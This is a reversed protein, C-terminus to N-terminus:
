GPDVAFLFETAAPEYESVKLQNTIGELMAYINKSESHSRDLAVFEHIAGNIEILSCGPTKEVGKGKMQTRIQAAEEWKHSVAYLNSLLAYRGSHHPQLKILHQGVHEGLRFDNHIMCAGFLAGWIGPSPEMPMNEILSLAEELHGARGLLDVMCGYHERNPKFGYVQSMCSFYMWGQNVLGAHSCASLVGLFTVANPLINDTLMQGFLDLSRLAHGHMALGNIMATWPYVDKHPLSEFVMFADDICGCKSYMDILATGLMMNMEINNKSMYMHVWRGQDIAGLQACATLVSAMTPQNPEFEELLMDQFSTLAEKYRSSQIYGAILASWSIANKLPMENFLRQADDCYGCKAYMDVLAGGFFTDWVVRRCVGYFGHIWRGLWIDGVLGIACLASVATVGDIEVDKLRMELFLYLGEAARSNRVYGDIMATWAVRDRKGIGGFVQRASVLDGGNAYASILSNQVFADFDLGFKVIDGHVQSPNGGKPRSLAKLLSPYSHKDPIVGNRRMWAFYVMSKEPQHSLSFGRIMINWVFADRSHIQHFILTAYDLHAPRLNFCFHLIKTISFTDQSLGTTIFLCHIQKLHELSSSRSRRDHSAEGIKHVSACM